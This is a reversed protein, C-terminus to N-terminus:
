AQEEYRFEKARNWTWTTMKWEVALPVQIEPMYTMLHSVRAAIEPVSPLLRRPCELILEDHIPLLLKVEGRLERKLYEHVRIQARKLIGAATGQILYNSGAYPKSPNVCLKRGFSTTIYGRREVQRIAKKTMNAVGPFRRKYAEFGPEAEKESLMLTEAVRSLGGGYALAFQANKAATRLMKKAKPYYQDFVEPYDQSQFAKAVERRMKEDREKVFSIAHYPDMFKEGYFLSAALAHPDGNNVILEVLEQDQTHEVILRMEIGAYDILFLLHGPRARFCQRAPVPFRTKLAAEKSINQMNPNESSERGTQAKNTNIHPFIIGDPNMAALYSNVMSVGKTYSRRRLICDLVKVVNPDTANARLIEIADKDTSPENARTFSPPTLGLDVYLLRNLQKPSNLNITYGMGEMEDAASQNERELWQLLKNAEARDVMIGNMEMEVTTKVLAIENLYDAHMGEDEQLKPYLSLFLLMTREVDTRQYRTMLEKPIKDYTGYIQRARVVERDTDTPYGGWKYALDDLAHSPALNELMQSILMTDHWVTGEPVTFGSNLLMALEFHYHHAVKAISVDYFLEQLRKRNGAGDTGDFRYVQTQGEEDCLAYAFIYGGRYPDLGVTEVDFAVCRM